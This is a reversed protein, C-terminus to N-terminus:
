GSDSWCLRTPNAEKGFGGDLDIDHATDIACGSALDRKLLNRLTWM